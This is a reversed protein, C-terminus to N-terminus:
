VAFRSFMGDLVNFLQEKLAQVRQGDVLVRPDTQIFPGRILEEGCNEVMAQLSTLSYDLHCQLGLIRDGYQFAQFPCAESSALHVAGPPISFVDGHWHFATFTHPLGSLLSQHKAEPTLTVPFWGIETHENRTVSGGLVDALLQAGLCIGIVIKGAEVVQKLWTKEQVLWPYLDHEYIGMPGGMVALWDIDQVDPLLENKYLCTRTVAFGNKSAWVGINAADEFPVHQLVHLKTM